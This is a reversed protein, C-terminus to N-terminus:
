SGALCVANVQPLRGWQTWAPAREARPTLLRKRWALAYDLCNACTQHTHGDILPRHARYADYSWAETDISTWAGGAALELGGMKVGFGHLSYGYRAFWSALLSIKITDSRRCVSGLGVIPAAALDVGAAVYLERCYELHGLTWGQLVPFFPCPDDSVEPWYSTLSVYSLMTLHAHIEHSLGTGEAQAMGVKGGWIMAPESMWDQPAAGDVQGIERVCRAVLEAYEQMSPSGWRLNRGAERGHRLLHTFGGSDILLPGTGPKLTKREALYRAQVCLPVGRRREDWAWGAKHTTLYVTTM